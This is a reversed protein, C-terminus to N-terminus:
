SVDKVLVQIYIMVNCNTYLVLVPRSALEVHTRSMHLSSEHPKRLHSTGVTLRRQMHLDQSKFHARKSVIDYSHIGKRSRATWDLFDPMDNASKISV